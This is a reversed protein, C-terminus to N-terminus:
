NNLCYMFLHFQKSAVGPGGYTSSPYLEVSALFSPSQNIYVGTSGICVVYVIEETYENVGSTRVLLLTTFTQGDAQM